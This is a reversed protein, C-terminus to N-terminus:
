SSEPTSPSVAVVGQDLMLFALWVGGVTLHPRKFATIKEREEPLIGHGKPM